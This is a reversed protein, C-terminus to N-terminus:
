IMFIKIRSTGTALSLRPVLFMELPRELVLVRVMLVYDGEILHDHDVFLARQSESMGFIAQDQDM